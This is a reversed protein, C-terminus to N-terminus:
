NKKFLRKKSKAKRKKREAAAKQKPDAEGRKLALMNPDLHTEKYDVKAKRAERLFRKQEKRQQKADTYTTQAAASYVTLCCLVALSVLWKLYKDSVVALFNNM